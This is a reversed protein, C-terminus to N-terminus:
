SSSLMVVLDIIWECDPLLNCCYAPDISVIRDSDCFIAEIRFLVTSNLLFRTCCLLETSM